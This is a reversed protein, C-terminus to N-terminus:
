KAFLSPRCAWPLLAMIRFSPQAHASEEICLELTQFGIGGAFLGPIHLVDFEIGIFGRIRRGRRHYRSHGSLLHFQQPQIRVRCGLSQLFFQCTKVTHLRLIDEYGVTRVFHQIKGKHSEAALTYHERVNRVTKVLDVTVQIM